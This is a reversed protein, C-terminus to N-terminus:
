FECEKLENEYDERVMREFVTEGEEVELLDAEQDKEISSRSSSKNLIGFHQFTTPRFRNISSNFSPAGVHHSIEAIIILTWQLVYKILGSLFLHMLDTPTNYIHNDAGFSANFFLNMIPHYGKSESAELKKREVKIYKIGKLKKLLIEKCEIINKVESM